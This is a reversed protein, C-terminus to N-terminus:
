HEPKFESNPKSNQKTRSASDTAYPLKNVSKQCKIVWLQKLQENEWQYKKIQSHLADLTKQLETATNALADERTRRADRSKKASENNRRRREFYRNDKQDEPTANKLGRSGHTKDGSISSYVKALTQHDFGTLHLDA